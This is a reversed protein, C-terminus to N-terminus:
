LGANIKGLCEAYGAIDVASDRHQGNTHVLRALKLAIMCMSVQQPTVDVGLLPGWLAAIRQFNLTQSGYNEQREGNVARNAEELISKYGIGALHEVARTIDEKHQQALDAFQQVTM